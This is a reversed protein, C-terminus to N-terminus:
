SWCEEILRGDKEMKTIFERAEDETEGGHKQAAEKVAQKVGAPM